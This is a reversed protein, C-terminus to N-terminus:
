VFHAHVTFIPLLYVAFSAILAKWLAKRNFAM